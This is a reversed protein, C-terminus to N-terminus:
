RAVTSRDRGDDQRTRRALRLGHRGPTGAERVSSRVSPQLCHVAGGSSALWPGARCREGTPRVEHRRVASLDTDLMSSPARGLTRRVAHRPDPKEDNLLYSCTLVVAVAGGLPADSGLSQGPWWPPRM